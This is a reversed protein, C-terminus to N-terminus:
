KKNIYINQIIFDNKNKIVIINFFYILEKEKIKDLEEQFSEKWKSFKILNKMFNKDIWEFNFWKFFIKIDQKEKKIDLLNNESLYNIIKIENEKLVSLYELLDKRLHNIKIKSILISIEKTTLRKEAIENIIDKIKEYSNLFDKLESPNLENPNIKQKWEPVKIEIKKELGSVPENYNITEM